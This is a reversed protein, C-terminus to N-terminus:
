VRVETKRTMAASVIGALVFFALGIVLVASFDHRSLADILETDLGNRGAVAMWFGGLGGLFVFFIMMIITGAKGWRFIVTGLVGLFATALFLIGAMPFFLRLGDSSIEGPFLRWILQILAMIGLINGALSGFIGAVITKRTVNMTLLVSFYVQFYTVALIVNLFMGAIYLYYPYLQAMYSFVGEQGSYDTGAVGLFLLMAAAGAVSIGLIELTNKGWFKVNRLLVEM